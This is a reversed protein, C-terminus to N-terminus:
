FDSDASQNSFRERFAGVWTTIIQYPKLHAFVNYREVHRHRIRSSYPAAACTKWLQVDKGTTETSVHHAYCITRTPSQQGTTDYDYDYDYGSYTDRGGYRNPQQRARLPWNGSASATRHLAIMHM